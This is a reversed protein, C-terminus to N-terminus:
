DLLNHIRRLYFTIVKDESIVEAKELLDELQITMYRLRTADKERSSFVDNLYLRYLIPKTFNLRLPIDKKSQLVSDTFILVGQDDSEIMEGNWDELYFLIPRDYPNLIQIRFTDQLWQDQASLRLGLSLLLLLFFQIKLMM